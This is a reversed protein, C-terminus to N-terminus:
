KRHYKYSSFKIKSKWKSYTVPIKKRKTDIKQTLLESINNWNIM